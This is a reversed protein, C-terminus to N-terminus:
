QKTAYYEGSPDKQKLGKVIGNERIFIISYDAFQEIRFIDKSVPVLKIRPTGPVVVFIESGTVEVSFTAGGM